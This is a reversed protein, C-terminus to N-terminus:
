NAGTTVYGDCNANCQRKAIAIADDVSNGTATGWYHDSSFVVATVVETCTWAYIGCGSNCAHVAENQADGLTEGHGRGWANNNPNFAIAGCAFSQQAMMTLATVTVAFLFTKM